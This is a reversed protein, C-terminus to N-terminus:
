QGFSYNISASLVQFDVLAPDEVDVHNLSYRAGSRYYEYMLAFQWGGFTKDIRLGGSISGFPSLRYDSSYLNSPPGIYSFPLYFDAQSQDYYRISPTIKWGHSLTQHWALKLTNSHIGWSDRFFRYDVHVAADLPEIYYRYRSLLAFKRRREPRSDPALKTGLYVFKYPDSLFGNEQSYNVSLQLLSHRNLIQTLGGYLSTEHNHYRSKRQYKKADTPNLTNNTFGAGAELTTMGQNFEKAVELGAQISRYDKEKSYGSTLSLRHPGRYLNLKSQISNREENILRKSQSSTAGSMVVVPKGNLDPEIYWPSAGSMTEHQLALEIDSDTFLFPAKLDVQHTKVTYRESGGRALKSSPVSNEHYHSFHYSASVDTAPEAAQAAGGLAPLALSAAMLASLTTNNKETVAM